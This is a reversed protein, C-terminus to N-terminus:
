KIKIILKSFHKQAQLKEYAQKAHELDFIEQDIAMKIDHDEIFRNMDKFMNRSGLLVGRIICMHMLANLLSPRDTTPGAVLGAAIVLGDPRVAKVSEGLTAEGGVDIVFDVGQGDSSLAKAADGWNIEERYNIVHTAGL